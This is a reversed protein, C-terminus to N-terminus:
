PQVAKNPCRPLLLPHAGRGACPAGVLVSPPRPALIPSSM